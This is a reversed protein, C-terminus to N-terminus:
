NFSQPVHNSSSFRNQENQLSLTTQLQALQARLRPAAHFLTDTDPSLITATLTPIVSQWARWPAAAHRQVASGVGLGWTKLPLFFLPSTVDRRILHSWSTTVQMDFNHAEQEPVFSMRLAHQSAAGVYMTPLDNVTQANLGEANLDALTTAIRQFRQTTKDMSAQEGLVVPSPEIDGHIRLHGGLCSLTLRVKDQLEPPIPVQCSAKWIQVKSPQLQLNVSRAAATVLAFTLPLYQPKIWVYWCDDLCAFPKAGPDHHRSVSRLVPDIAASFGCASLPGGQDVGSNASIKTNASDHHM